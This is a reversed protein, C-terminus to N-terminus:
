KLSQRLKSWYAAAAQIQDELYAAYFDRSAYGVLPKTLPKASVDLMTLTPMLTIRHQRGWETATVRQGNPLSFPQRNDTDIEVVILGPRSTSRIRPALQEKKVAVCFPCHESSYLGAVVSEQRTAQELASVLQAASFFLERSL